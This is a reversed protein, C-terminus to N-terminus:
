HTGDSACVPVWLYLSRKQIYELIAIIHAVVFHLLTCCHILCHYELVRPNRCARTYDSQYYDNGTEAAGAAGGSRAAAAVATCIDSITPQTQAASRYNEATGAAAQAMQVARAVPSDDRQRPSNAAAQPPAAVGAAVATENLNLGGARAKAIVADMEVRSSLLLRVRQDHIRRNDFRMAQRADEDTAFGIFADGDPGGVIHVAGDPIKLGAFFIRIDAAVASLPLHQLRIIWSM